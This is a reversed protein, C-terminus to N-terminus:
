CLIRELKELIAELLLCDSQGGILRMFPSFQKLSCSDDALGMLHAAHLVCALGIMSDKIPVFFADAVVHESLLTCIREMEQKDCEQDM